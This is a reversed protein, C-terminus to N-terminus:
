AWHPVYDGSAKLDLRLVRTKELVMDAQVGGHKRGYHYHVLGRFQLGAGILHKRQYSNGHNHHREV